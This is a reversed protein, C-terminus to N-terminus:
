PRKGFWHPTVDAEVLANGPHDVHGEPDVHILIEVEPFERHVRQEIAEMVDHAEAVTMGAAVHIHFQAFDRAGSRRTRLDHIGKLQPHGAAIALFRKRREDSWERDMLQDIAHSSARFAGWALWLAIAIGFVPDAGTVGLWHELALAVIVAVNLLLDAQYHITDTRIAVSDTRAVIGRQYAVLGATAVIAILSAAIGIEVNAVPRAEGFSVLARWGILVASATILAVQALAALAEAKGHGFRHDEDAPIAAFMLGSLIVLSAFLDLGSDALSGLMAVSGTMWAALAKVLLLSIAVGASVKAARVVLAARRASAESM